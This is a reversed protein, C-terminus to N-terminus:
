ELMLILNLGEYFFFFTMDQLIIVLFNVEIPVTTLM